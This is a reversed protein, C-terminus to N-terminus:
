NTTQRQEIELARVNNSKIINDLKVSAKELYFKGAEESQWLDKTWEHLLM